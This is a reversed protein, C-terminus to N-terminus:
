PAVGAVWATGDWHATSGDRLVVHEGTAWATAPDATFSGATLEAFDAPGYSNAPTWEGPTGATAGTALTGLEQPECDAEPPALATRFTRLHRTTPLPNPLPSPVGGTLLVDYPGVGWGNGKKTAAGTLTFTIAANEITFDGLVGGQLFPLLIYGYSQGTQGPDCADGPVGTWVELAFGADCASIEDDMDFGIVDGDNEFVPQNSMMALLSPNVDCFTAEVSYNQFKPCPTDRVCTDGNANTVNIEEGEDINATLAISVFGSSVITSDPGLVPNGCGDLRTARMRRGRVMPYCVNAM